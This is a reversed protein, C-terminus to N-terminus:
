ISHFKAHKYNIVAGKFGNGWTISALRRAALSLRTKIANIYMVYTSGAHFTSNGEVELVGGVGGCYREFIM